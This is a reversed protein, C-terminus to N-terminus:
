PTMLRTKDQFSGVKNEQKKGGVGTEFVGRGGEKRKPKKSGTGKTGVALALSSININKRKKKKSLPEQQGPVSFRTPPGTVEPHNGWGLNKKSTEASLRIRGKTKELKTTNKPSSQFGGGNVPERGSNKERRSRTIKKRNTEETPVLNGGKRPHRREKKKQHTRKIETRNQHREGERQM